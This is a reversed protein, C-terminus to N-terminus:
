IEKDEMSFILQCVYTFGKLYIKEAKDKNLCILFLLDTFNFAM